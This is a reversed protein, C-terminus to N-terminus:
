RGPGGGRNEIGYRHNIRISQSGSTNIRGLFRETSTKSDLTRGSISMDLIVLGMQMDTAYLVRDEASLVLERMNIAYEGQDNKVTLVGYAYIEQINTIDLVIIQKSSPVAFFVLDREEDEGSVEDEDNDEAEGRRGDEDMDVWYDEALELGALLNRMTSPLTYTGVQNM